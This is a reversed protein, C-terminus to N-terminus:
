RKERRTRPPKWTIRWPFRPLNKLMRGTIRVAAGQQEAALLSDDYLDAAAPLAGITSDAM